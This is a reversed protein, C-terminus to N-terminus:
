GNKKATLATNLRALNRRLSRIVLPNTMQGLQNKMKSELIEGIIENKKKKLDVMSLDKIESFKM